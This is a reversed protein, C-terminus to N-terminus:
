LGEGVGEARTTKHRLRREYKTAIIIEFVFTGSKNQNHLFIAIKKNNKAAVSIIGVGREHM